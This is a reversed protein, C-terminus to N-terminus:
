EIQLSSFHFSTLSLPTIELTSIFAIFYYQLPIFPFNDHLGLAVNGSLAKKM